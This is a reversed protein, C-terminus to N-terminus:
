LYFDHRGCVGLANATSVDLEQMRIADLLQIMFEHADQQAILGLLNVALIVLFGPWPTTSYGPSSPQHYM